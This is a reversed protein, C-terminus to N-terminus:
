PAAPVLTRFAATDFIVRGAALLAHRITHWECLTVTGTGIATQLHLEFISCVESTDQWQRLIHHGRVIPALRAASELFSRKGNAAVFPGVFTFDEALLPRAREVDGAYFAALYANVIQKSDTM